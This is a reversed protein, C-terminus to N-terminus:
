RKDISFFYEWDFMDNFCFKYFFGVYVVILLIYFLKIRGFFFWSGFIERKEMMRNYILFFGFFLM